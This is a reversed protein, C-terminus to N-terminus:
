VTKKAKVAKRKKSEEATKKIRKNQERELAKQSIIKRTEKSVKYPKKTKPNIGFGINNKKVIEKKLSDIQIDHEEAQYKSFICM